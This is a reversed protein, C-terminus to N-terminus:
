SNINKEVSKASQHAKKKLGLFHLQFWAKSCLPFIIKQRFNNITESELQNVFVRM